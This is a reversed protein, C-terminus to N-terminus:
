CAMLRRPPEHLIRVLGLYEWLKEKFVDLNLKM